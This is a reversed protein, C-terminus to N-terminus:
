FSEADEGDKGAERPNTRCLTSQLKPYGGKLKRLGRSHTLFLAKEHCKLTGHEWLHELQIYSTRIRLYTTLGVSSPYIWKINTKAALSYDTRPLATYDLITMVHGFYM